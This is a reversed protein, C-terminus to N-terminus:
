PCDVGVTAAFVQERSSETKKTGNIRKNEGSNGPLSTPPSSLFHFSDAKNHIVDMRDGERLEAEEVGPLKAKPGHGPQRAHPLRTTWLGKQAPQAPAQVTGSSPM